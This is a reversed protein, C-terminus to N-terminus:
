CTHAEQVGCVIASVTSSSVPGHLRVVYGGPLLLEVTGSTPQRPTTASRNPIEVSLFRPPASPQAPTSHM